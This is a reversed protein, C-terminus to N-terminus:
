HNKKRKGKQTGTIEEVTIGNKRSKEYSLSIPNKRTKDRCMVKIRNFIDDLQFRDAINGIKHKFHMEFNTDDVVNKNSFIYEFMIHNKDLVLTTECNMMVWGDKHRSYSYRSFEDLEDCIFLLASPKNLGIGRWYAYQNSHAAMSYLLDIIMAFQAAEEPQMTTNRSTSESRVDCIFDLYNQLIYASMIGHDLKEFSRACDLTVGPNNTIVFEDEAGKKTLRVASSLLELLANITTHHIVTFNYKFQQEELFGFNRIMKGMYENAYVTKQIPYGLDHSLAILIWGPISYKKLLMGIDRKNDTDEEHDCIFYGLSMSSFVSCKKRLYFGLLMVWVSHIVHDRHYKDIALLLNEYQVFEEFYKFLRNLGRSNETIQNIAIRFFHEWLWQASERKKYKPGKQDVMVALHEDIQQYDSPQIYEISRIYRKFYDTINNAEIKM